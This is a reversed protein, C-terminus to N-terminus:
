NHRRAVLCVFTQDISTNGQLFEAKLDEFMSDRYESMAPTAAHTATVDEFTILHSLNFMMRYADPVPIRENAVIEFGAQSVRSGLHPVWSSLAM